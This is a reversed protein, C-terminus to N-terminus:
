SSEKCFLDDILHVTAPKFVGKYYICMYQPLGRLDQIFLCFPVLFFLCFSCHNFFHTQISRLKYGTALSHLLPILVSYLVLDRFHRTMILDVLFSKLVKHLAILISQYYKTCKQGAIYHMYSM